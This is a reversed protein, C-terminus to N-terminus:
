ICAPAIQYPSHASPPAGAGGPQTLKEEATTEPSAPCQFAIANNADHHNGKAQPIVASVPSWPLELCGLICKFRSKTAEFCIDLGIYPLKFGQGSQPTGVGM